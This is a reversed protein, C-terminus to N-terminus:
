DAFRYRYAVKNQKKIQKEKRYFDPIRKKYPMLM